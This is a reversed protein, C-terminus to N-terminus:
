RRNRFGYIIKLREVIEFVVPCIEAYEIVGYLSWLRGPQDTYPFGSCEEPKCDQIICRGDDKLFACPKAKFEYPKEADGGVTEKTGTLYEAAFDSESLGLFASISKLEDYGIAIGCMRCCNACKCCDYGAFLEKHLALFQEDLEEVDARNKLFARFKYNQEELRKAKARVEGPKVM